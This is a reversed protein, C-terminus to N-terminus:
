KNKRLVVVRRTKWFYYRPVKHKLVLECLNREVLHDILTQIKYGKQTFTPLPQM